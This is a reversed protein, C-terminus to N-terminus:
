HTNKATHHVRHNPKGCSARMVPDLTRQKGNQATFRIAARHRTRCIDTSNVFLGKRGGEMKLVLKSLPADPVSEFRTRLRGGVSDVRGVANVDVIGHLAIVLDPLEHRSSRLYVPGRLPEDLLPSFATARGYVSGKPCSDAAFQVRTCITRFHAQEIFESPPLSVEAAAINADGRRPKLVARLAPFDGRKTGGILGLSLRPKFGLLSCNAAQFRASPSRLADDAPDLPDLGGGWLRAAFSEPACSTPNLAFRSRDAFIRVDRVKLPVGALIHPLPPSRSGDIEGRGTEPDLGAGERVVVTGLDFPGAVAPVIAVVSLPSGRYPGALYLRGPVYTATPGVGAGALLRGIQAGAPCSPARSEESGSRAKAAEIAADPCRSVGALKVLLGPPLTTSVRSLDQDGDQRTLRMYLPSFSAASNSMTGAEFGPRFRPPGSPCPEGGVGSTIEFSPHAVTVGGGWSTFTAKATYEGCGGPTVLPSRAGARFHLQFSSIPLQPIEDFTTTIQGTRPDLAVKGALKVIVGRDPIKLVLYLAVLTGFPNQYPRAVYLAGEAPEDLLPSKAVATGIKSGEPCGAGPPSGAAERALDAESCSDLGDAQSPNVSVGEPLTVEVKRQAAEVSLNPDKLGDTPFTLSADLGSASEASAATPELSLQPKFDLLGCGTVPPLSGSGEFVTEPLQYSVTTARITFPKGCNTPNAMFPVPALGSPRTGTPTEIASQNHAAEYPTMREGDHSRDAPVGWLVTETRYLNAQTDAGRVTATIGYPEDGGTRLETDILIPYTLAIFGLRAPEGRRPELNFVPEVVEGTGQSGNAFVIHTVGVQSDQPCGTANSKSEFDTGVLQAGSCKPVANPNGILGQPLEVSVDRTLAPLNFNETKLVISTDFDAHAGARSTALSAGVSEIGYNAPDAQVSGAATVVSLAVVLATLLRRM